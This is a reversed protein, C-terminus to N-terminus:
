VHTDGGLKIFYNYWIHKLLLEVLTLFEIKSHGVSVADCNSFDDLIIWLGLSIWNIQQQIMIFHLKFQVYLRLKMNLFKFNMTKILIIVM